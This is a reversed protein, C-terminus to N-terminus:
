SAGTLLLRSSTPITRLVRLLKCDSNKLRHGEDVVVYKWIFLRLHMVDAIATEYSTVIVPFRQDARGARMHLLM